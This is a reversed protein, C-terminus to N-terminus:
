DGFNTSTQYYRIAGSHNKSWNGWDAFEVWDSMMGNSDYLNASMAVSNM